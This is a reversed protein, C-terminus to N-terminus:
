KRCNNASPSIAFGRKGASKEGDIELPIYHYKEFLSESVSQPLVAMGLGQKMFQKCTEIQDVSIRQIPEIKNQNALWHKIVEEL